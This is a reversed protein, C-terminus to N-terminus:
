NIRERETSLGVSAPAPAKSFLEDYMSSLAQRASDPILQTYINMTTSINSHRMVAQADKPKGHKQFHTAFTRRLAQFTVGPVGKSAALPSLFRRLYNHSDVPRGRYRSEFVFDRPGTRQCFIRHLELERQLQGPIPIRAESGATKTEGLKNRYVAEDIAIWDQQIDDWRLAFLEGPRFGVLVFLRFILRDRKTLAADLIAIEDLSLHRKCPKRTKPLKEIKRCPNKMLFDQDIAEELAANLYIHAKRVVSESFRTALSKLFVEVDFKSIDSLRVGGFRQLVHNKMIYGVTERQSRRWDQLPLFRNEWFWRLTISPDAKTEQQPGLDKEIIQLLEKKAEWKKYKSILGIVRERKRRVESGDQLRVYVHYHGIYKGDEISLWGNQHRTRPM